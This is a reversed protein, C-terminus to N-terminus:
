SACMCLLLWEAILSINRIQQFNMNQGQWYKVGLREWRMYSCFIPWTDIYFPDNKM